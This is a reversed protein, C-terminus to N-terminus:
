RWGPLDSGRRADHVMDGAPVHLTVRCYDHYRRRDGNKNDLLNTEHAVPRQIALVFISYVLHQKAGKQSRLVLLVERSEFFDEQYLM